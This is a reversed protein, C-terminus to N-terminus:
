NSETFTGDTALWGRKGGLQAQWKGDDFSRIQQYKAEIVLQGRRDIVGYKRNLRVIAFGGEHSTALEYKPEIQWVGNRDIYGWLGFEDSAPSGAEGFWRVDKFRPMVVLKGSRDVFGWGQRTQVPALEEGVGAFPRADVYHCALLEKGSSDVLGCKRGVYAAVQDRYFQEGFRDYRAPIIMEGSPDIFGWGTKTRVCARDVRGHEGFKYARLFQPEIQVEEGVFSRYGWLEGERFKVPPPPSMREAPKAGERDLPVVQVGAQNIFQVICYPVGQTCLQRQNGPSIARIETWVWLNQSRGLSFETVTAINGQEHLARRTVFRARWCDRPADEATSIKMSEEGVQMEIQLEYEATMVLRAPLRGVGHVAFIKGEDAKEVVGAREPQQAALAVSLLISLSVGCTVSGNM